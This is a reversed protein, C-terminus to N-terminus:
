ASSVSKVFCGNAAGDSLEKAERVDHDFVRGRDKISKVEGGATEFKGIGDV